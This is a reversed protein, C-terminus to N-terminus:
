SGGLTPFANEDSVNVSGGDRGGRGGRFSDGRFGDARGRYDGRGRGGRGRDGGRGRGRGRGEGGRAPEAYRFDVDLTTKEKRQREKKAKEGKGSIFEEEEDKSLAKAQAWKKDQKSGENPKRAELTGGGLKLKKEAQEALYDAYSRSNDEPEPEEAAPEPVGAPAAVDATTDVAEVDLPKAESTPDWANEKAANWGGGAAEEAKAIEEGAKEDKWEADGSPAGWSQDAQKVHDSAFPHTLAPSSITTLTYIGRIAVHTDTMVTEVDVEVAEAAVVEADM